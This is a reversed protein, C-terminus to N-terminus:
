ESPGTTLGSKLRDVQERVLQVQAELQNKLDQARDGIKEGNGKVTKAMTMISALVEAAQGVHNIAADIIEYDGRAKERSLCARCIMARAVSVAARLYVDSAVDERDWVVVIDDGYRAFSEMGNPATSKSFVFIGVQAGRNERVKKIEHLAAKLDYSKDEKAECAIREGAAVSDPGLTIVEDGVKGQRGIKHGTAEFIDGLRQAEQQLVQNVAAEFDPGHRTSRAAEERRAKYSELTARVETQFEVQAKRVENLVKVLERQLRSLPSQEDDLTLSAEIRGNTSQLLKELRSIASGANDSSFENSIQRHALEVRGVLRALAGDPNDLSFEMRVQSLDKLLDDKLKGNVGTIDAVLRSLASAKDDLSFQRLVLDRQEQLADAMAGQLSEIVGGAQDPSLLRVLPSSSGIRADLTTALTSADGDLHRLLMEELEGDQELLRELRCALEGKTPDFYRTLAEKVSTDFQASHATLFSRIETILREGEHRIVDADIVGSAQRIALVGLRLASLALSERSEGDPLRILEHIVEADKVWLVLHLDRPLESSVAAVEPHILAGSTTNM